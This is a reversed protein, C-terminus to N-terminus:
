YLEGLFFFSHIIVWHTVLKFLFDWLPSYDIFATGWVMGAWSLQYHVDKELEVFM